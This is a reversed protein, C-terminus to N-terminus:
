FTIIFPLRITRWKMVATTTAWVCTVQRVSEYPPSLLELMSLIVYACDICSVIMEISLPRSFNTSTGMRKEAICYFMVSNGVTCTLAPTFNVVVHLLITYGYRFMLVIHIRVITVVPLDRCMM